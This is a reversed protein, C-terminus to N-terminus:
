VFARYFHRILASIFYWWLTGFIGLVAWGPLLYGLFMLLVSIPLDVLFVPFWQWSGESPSFQVIICVIVHLAPLMLVPVTPRRLMSDGLSVVTAM